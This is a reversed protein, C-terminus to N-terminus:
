GQEPDSTLHPSEHPVVDKEPAHLAVTAHYQRLERAASELLATETYPQGHGRREVWDNYWGVVDAFNEILLRKEMMTQLKIPVGTVLIKNVILEDIAQEATKYRVGHDRLFEQDRRGLNGIVERVSYQQQPRLELSDLDWPQDTGLRLQQQPLQASVGSMDSLLYHCRNWDEFKIGFNSHWSLRRPQSQFVPLGLIYSELNQMHQDYIFYSNVHFHRDVWDLYEVYSDLYRLLNQQEVRIRHQYIEAFHQFKEQATYVNLQRSAVFICWSLAHELLNERQASIVFFNDNLYQYFPLQDGISDQRNKIHYQALRSTKYHDVSSLLDRIEPLTQHYGWRDTENKGLVECNFLPSYYRMLGNTLEHLNIVPQDFEHFQMYITILRQLLTSGVRDPTLIVVNM